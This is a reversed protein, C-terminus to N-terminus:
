QLVSKLLEILPPFLSSSLMSCVVVVAILRLAYAVTGDQIQFSSQLISGILSVIGVILLMPIAIVLFARLAANSVLFISDM